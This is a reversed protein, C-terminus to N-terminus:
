NHPFPLLLHWVINLNTYIFWSKCISSERASSPQSLFINLTPPPPCILNMSENQFPLYECCHLLQVSLLYGLFNNCHLLYKVLLVSCCCGSRCRSCCFVTNNLMIDENLYICLTHFFFTAIKIKFILFIMPWSTTSSLGQSVIVHRKAQSLEHISKKTKIKGKFMPALKWVGLGGISTYQGLATELFFLPMGAFVLTLFYPIM